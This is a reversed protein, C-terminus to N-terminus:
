HGPEVQGISALGREGFRSRYRRVTPLSVGCCRGIKANAVGEIAMLLVQAQRVERGPATQSRALRVLEERQEDLVSLAEAAAVM